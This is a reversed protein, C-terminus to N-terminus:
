TGRYGKVIGTCMYGHVVGISMYYVLVGYYMHVGTSRNYEQMDTRSRCGNYGQIVGSSRCVHVQSTAKYGQVIGAGRYGM